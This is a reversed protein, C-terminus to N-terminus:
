PPNNRSIGMFYLSRFCGWDVGLNDGRRLRTTTYLLAAYEWEADADTRYEQLDRRMYRGRLLAM